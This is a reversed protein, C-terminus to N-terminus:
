GQLAVRGPYIVRAPSTSWLGNSRPFRYVILLGRHPSSSRACGVALIEVTSIPGDYEAPIPAEFTRPVEPGYIPGELEPGELTARVYDARRAWEPVPAGAATYEEFRLIRDTLARELNEDSWMDPHDCPDLLSELLQRRWPSIASHFRDRGDRAELTARTTHDFM